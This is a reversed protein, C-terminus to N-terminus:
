GSRSLFAGHHIASVRSWAPNREMARPWEAISIYEFVIRPRWKGTVPQSVECSKRGEPKGALRNTLSCGEDGQVDTARSDMRKKFKWNSHKTTKTARLPPSQSLVDKAAALIINNLDDCKGNEGRILWRDTAM